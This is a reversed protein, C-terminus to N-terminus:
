AIKVKLLKSYDIKATITERKPKEAGAPTIHGSEATVEPPYKQLHHKLEKYCYLRAKIDDAATFNLVSIYYFQRTSPDMFAYLYKDKTKNQQRYIRKIEERAKTFDSCAIYYAASTGNIDIQKGNVSARSLEPAGAYGSFIIKENIPFVM